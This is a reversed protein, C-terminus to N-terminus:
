ESCHYITRESGVQVGSPFSRSFFADQRCHTAQWRGQSRAAPYFGNKLRCSPTGNRSIPRADRGGGSGPQLSKPTGAEEVGITSGRVHRKRGYDVSGPFVRLDATRNYWGSLYWWPESIERANESFSEEQGALQSGRSRGRGRRRQQEEIHKDDDNHRQDDNDREGHDHWRPPVVAFATPSTDDFDVIVVIIVNDCQQPSGCRPVRLSVGTERDERQSSGARRRRVHQCM